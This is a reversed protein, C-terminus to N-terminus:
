LTGIVANKVSYQINYLGLRLVKFTKNYMVYDQHSCKIHQTQENCLGSQQEKYVVNHKM